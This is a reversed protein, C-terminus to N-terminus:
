NEFFFQKKKIRVEKYLKWKKSNENNEIKM